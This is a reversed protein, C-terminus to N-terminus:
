PALAQSSISSGGHRSMCTHPSLLVRHQSCMRMGCSRPIHKRAGEFSATWQVRSCAEGECVFVGGHASDM